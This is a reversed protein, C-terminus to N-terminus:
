LISYENAYYEELLELGGIAKIRGQELWCVKDGLLSACRPDHTVTIMTRARNLEPSLLCSLLLELSQSDQGVTPEDLILVKPEMALIAAIGVKRKQGESLSHPHNEELDTIQFHELLKRGLEKNKAQVMVEQLVSGMYLQYNPNQFVYGLKRYWEPKGVSKEREILSQTMVGSTEKLFRAIIKLLTTKGSGNDGIVIWRDGEKINLEIGQLIMKDSLHFGLDKLKFIRKADATQQTTIVTNIKEDRKSNQNQEREKLFEEFVLKNNYVTGIKDEIWIVKDVYPLVLDLRHEIFVVAKGQSCLSKLAQLLKQGFALDLNALPEDLILIEPEMSITAATILRQMQGGSLKRTRDEPNLEMMKTAQEIRRDIEHSELHLNECPFAIEDMVIDFIIQEQANQLVSGLLRSIDSVKLEKVNKGCISIEGEFVGNSQIQPIVGNCCSLLTSKGHGSPGSVLFFEGPAVNFSINQFLWDSEENYKYAIKDLKLLATSAESKVSEM